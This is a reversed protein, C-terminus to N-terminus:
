TLQTGDDVLVVVFDLLFFKFFHTRPFINVVAVGLTPKTDSYMQFLSRLTDANGVAGGM